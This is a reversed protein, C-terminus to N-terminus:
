KEPLLVNLLNTNLMLPKNKNLTFIFSQCSTIELFIIFGKLVASRAIGM